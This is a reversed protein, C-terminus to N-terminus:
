SMAAAGFSWRHTSQAQSEARSGSVAAPTHPFAATGVSHQGRRLLVPIFEQWVLLGLEDCLRYFTETEIVGGGWVRVINVNLRKAQHLQYSVQEAPIDGYIHDMPTINVGKMYVREGNM